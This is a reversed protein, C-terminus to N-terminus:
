NRNGARGPLPHGNVEPPPSALRADLWGIIIETAAEPPPMAPGSAFDRQWLVYGPQECPEVVVHGDDRLSAVHRQTAPKAWMSANTAPFFLCPREAALVATQAPTGALGLAATALMNATAPLVVIGLSRLAFEAPNLGPDSSSCVEDAYWAVTQRPLVREASYTLLVRVSLDVQSKLCMLYAPLAVMGSSGCAIVSLADDHVGDGQSGARQNRM